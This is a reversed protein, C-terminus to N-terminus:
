AFEDLAFAFEQQVVAPGISRDTREGADIIVVADEVLHSSRCLSRIPESQEHNRPHAVAAAAVTRIREISDGCELLPDFFPLRRVL